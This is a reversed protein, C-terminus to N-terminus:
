IPHCFTAIMMGPDTMTILKSYTSFTSANVDLHCIRIYLTRLYMITVHQVILLYRKSSQMRRYFRNRFHIFTMPYTRFTNYSSKHKGLIQSLCMDFKLYTVFLHQRYVRETGVQIPGPPLTVRVKSHAHQPNLSSNSFPPFTTTM